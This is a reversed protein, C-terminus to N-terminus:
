FYQPSISDLIEQFQKNRARKRAEDEETKIGISLLFKNLLENCSAVLDDEGTFSQNEILEAYARLGNEDTVFQEMVLIFLDIQEDFTDNFLDLYKQVETDNYGAEHCSPYFYCIIDEDKRSFVGSVGIGFREYNRKRVSSYIKGMLSFEKNEPITLGKIVLKGSGESHERIYDREASDIGWIVNDNDDHVWFCKLDYHYQHRWLNIQKIAEELTFCSEQTLLKEDTGKVIAVPWYFGM